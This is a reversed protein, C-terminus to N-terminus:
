PPFRENRVTAVAEIRVEGNEAILNGILPTFVQWPYYVKYLVIEGAGGVGAKGQDADWIGNGNVDEFNPNSPDGIPTEPTCVGINCPEPQGVNEFGHYSLPEIQLRAPDLFGGSLRTIEDRIYTLRDGGASYGTRGIRSGINTAGELVSSTFFILGLELIGIMLLFIVPAVVAFEILSAGDNCRCATSLPKVHLPHSMEHEANLRM